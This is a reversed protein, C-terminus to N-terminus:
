SRGLSVHHLSQSDVQPSTLNAARGLVSRGDQPRNGADVALEARQKVLGVRLERRHAARDVLGADRQDRDVLDGTLGGANARQTCADRSVDGRHDTTVIRAIQKELVAIIECQAVERDDEIRHAAPRAVRRLNAIAHEIEAGLGPKAVLV